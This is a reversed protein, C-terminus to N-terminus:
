EEAGEDRDHYYEAAAVLLAAVAEPRERVLVEPPVKLGSASGTHGSGSLEIAPLLGGFGHKARIVAAELKAARTKERSTEFVALVLLGAEPQFRLLVQLVFALLLVPLELAHFANRCYRRPGLATLLALHELIFICVIGLSTLELVEAALVLREGSGSSHLGKSNECAKLEADLGQIELVISGIVLALDVFLLTNLVRHLGPDLM